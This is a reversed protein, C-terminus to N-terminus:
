KESINIEKKCNVCYVVNSDYIFNCFPCRFQITKITQTEIIKSSHSIINKFVNWTLIFEIILIFLLAIFFIWYNSSIQVRIILPNSNPNASFLWNFYFILFILSLLSIAYSKFIEQKKKLIIISFGISLLSYIIIKIWNDFKNNSFCYSALFRIIFEQAIDPEIMFKIDPYFLGFILLILSLLLWQTFIYSKANVNKIKKPDFKLREKLIQCSELM